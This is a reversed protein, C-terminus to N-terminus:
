KQRTVLTEITQWLSRGQEILNQAFDTLRWQLIILRMSGMIIASLQEPAVDQRITGDVQGLEIFSQIMARRQVMIELVAKSLEKNNQFSTESFIVLVITPNDHFHAFQFNVLSKLKEIGTQNDTLLPSLADKMKAKYYILVSKLIEDKNKFHRYLAPESFKMEKALSKTTLNQVGNNGILTTAALIIDIQRPSFDM